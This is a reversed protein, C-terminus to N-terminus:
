SNDFIFGKHGVPWESKIKSLESGLREKDIVFSNPLHHSPHPLNPTTFPNVLTLTLTAGHNLELDCLGCGNRVVGGLVMEREWCHGLKAITNLKTHNM